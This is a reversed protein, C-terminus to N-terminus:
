YQADAVRSARAKFCQVYHAPLGAMLAGKELESRFTNPVYLHNSYTTSPVPVSNTGGDRGGGLLITMVVEDTLM